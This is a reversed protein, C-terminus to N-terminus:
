FNPEHEKSRYYREHCDRSATEFSGCIDPNSWNHDRLWVLPLFVLKEWLDKTWDSFLRAWDSGTFMEGAVDVFLVSKQEVIKRLEALLSADPMGYGFRNRRLKVAKCSPLIQVVQALYQMDSNRLENGSLDLTSIERVSADNALLTEVHQKLESAAIAGPLALASSSVFGNSLDLIHGNVVGRGPMAQRAQEEFSIATKSPYVLDLLLACAAHRMEHTVTPYAPPLVGEVPWNGPPSNAEMKLVTAIIPNFTSLEYLTSM